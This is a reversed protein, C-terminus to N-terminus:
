SSSTSARGRARGGSATRGTGTVGAEDVGTQPTQGEPVESDDDVTKGLLKQVQDDSLERFDGLGLLAKLVKDEVEYPENREFRVKSADEVGLSKWDAASLERADSAGTYQVHAM